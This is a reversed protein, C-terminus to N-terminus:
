KTEGQIYDALEKKSLIKQDKIEGDKIFFYENENQGFGQMKSTIGSNVKNGILLDVPKRLWKKKFVSEDTDTEAAFGIIKQNKKKAMVSALIDPATTIKLHDVLGDKKLKGDKMQFEIDSMAATSIYVDCNDFHESVVKEMERTTNAKLIVINPLHTLYNIKDTVSYGCVLVVQDGSALYAKALEYGTLGSSPNTIYRVPDLPSMTAGTTILVKRTPKTFSIAPIIEAIMEPKPLKGLGQDGCALEGSEAPHIFVNELESLYKLNRQTAPHSLMQSNMAPFIICPKKGLALFVSSILDDCLGASFKAITNATAPAIVLKDCWKVLDIHLVKNDKSYVETNFDDSSLYIFQAGLYKFANPNIFECAGRSVLVRVYHGAKTLSRCIDLARYASISGTVALLINLNVNRM